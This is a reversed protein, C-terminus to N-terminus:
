VGYVMFGVMIDKYAIGATIALWCNRIMIFFIYVKNLVM